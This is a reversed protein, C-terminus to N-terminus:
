QVVPIQLVTRLRHCNFALNPSFVGSYTTNWCVILWLTLWVLYFDTFLPYFPVPKGRSFACSTCCNEYLCFPFQFTPLALNITSEVMHVPIYLVSHVVRYISDDLEEQVSIVINWYLHYAGGSHFRCRCQQQVQLDWVTSCHSHM